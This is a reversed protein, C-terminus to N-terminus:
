RRQERSYMGQHPPKLGIGGEDFPSPSLDEEYDVASSYVLTTKSWWFQSRDTKMFSRSILVNLKAGGTMHYLQRALLRIARDSGGRLIFERM